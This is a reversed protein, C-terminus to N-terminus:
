PHESHSQNTSPVTPLATLDPEVFKSKADPHMRREPSYFLRLINKNLLQPHTDCFSESDLTPMVTGYAQMIAHIIKVFAVTTTENYGSTPSEPVKNHGNYARIGRRVRDLAQDFPLSSLYCYTIRVHARHTWQAFPLTLDEFQRQLEADTM